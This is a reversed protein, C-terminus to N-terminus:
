YRWGGRTQDIMQYSSFAFMGFFIRMIMNLIQNM